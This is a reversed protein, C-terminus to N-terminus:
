QLDWSGCVAKNAMFTKDFVHNRQVCLFFFIFCASQVPITLLSRQPEPKIGPYIHVPELSLPNPGSQNTKTIQPKM